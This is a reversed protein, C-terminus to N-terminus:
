SAPFRPQAELSSRTTRACHTSLMATSYAFSNPRFWRRTRRGAELRHTAAVFQAASFGASLNMVVPDTRGVISRVLVQVGAIHIRALLWQGTGGLREHAAHAFAVALVSDAHRGQPQGLLGIDRRRARHRQPRALRNPWGTASHRRDHNARRAGVSPCCQLARVTSRPRSHQWWSPRM